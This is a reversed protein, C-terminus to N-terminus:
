AGKLVRFVRKPTIRARKPLWAEMVAAAGAASSGFGPSGSPGIMSRCDPPKVIPPFTISFGLFGLMVSEHSWPYTSYKQGHFGRLVLITMHCLELVCVNWFRHSPPGPNLS